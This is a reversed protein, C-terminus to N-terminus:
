LQNNIITIVEDLKTTFFHDTGEIIHIKKSLPNIIEFINLSDQHPIIEDSTGHVLLINGTVKQCILDMDLGLKEHVSDRDIRFRKNNLEYFVEGEEVAKNFLSVMNPGIQKMDFRPALAVILKMGAFKSDYILVENAGKSHGILGVVEFGMEGAWVVVDRIAAVENEYNAISFNGESRGSGPLDFSLTNSRVGRSIERYLRDDKTCMTGHVILLLQNLRPYNIDLVYSIAFGDKTVIPKM